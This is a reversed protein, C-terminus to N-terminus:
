QRLYANYLGQGGHQSATKQKLCGPRRRFLNRRHGSRVLPNAKCGIM